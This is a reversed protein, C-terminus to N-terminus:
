KSVGAVALLLLLANTERELDKTWREVRGYDAFQGRAKEDDIDRKIDKIKEAAKVGEPKNAWEVLTNVLRMALNLDM